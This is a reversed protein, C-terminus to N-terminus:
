KAQNKEMHAKLKFLFDSAKAGLKWPCKDRAMIVSDIPALLPVYVKPFAINFIYYTAFLLLLAETASPKDVMFIVGGGVMCVDKLKKKEAFAM